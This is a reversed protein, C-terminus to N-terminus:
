TLPRLSRSYERRAPVSVLEREPYRLATLSGGYVCGTDIDITGNVWRAEGVAVHGYVVLAKGRYTRAWDIRIPLGLEDTEGTTKGYLAFAHVAKSERGHMSQPLGAHVCVLRGYDLVYHSPLGRLFDAIRRRFAGNEREVEAVTRDTGFTLRVDRGSLYKLLKMDHNGPLCLTTGRDVADMALRLVRVNGPGRDVLDGLLVLRRGDPHVLDFRPEGDPGSAESLSYGLRDLLETLEDHCGHIDGVIDFPGHDQRHRVSPLPDRVVRAAEAEAPDSIIRVEEFGEQGIHELSTLLLQQQRELTEDPLNRTSRLRNRERCLELDLNLVLATPLVHYERAIRILRTRDRERLNTADVVTLKGIKMRQEVLLHLVDFAAGSVGQRNEDDSVLARCRDSSVVETNRFHRSAFTSKGCGSVGVLVILSPDYFRFEMNKLSSLNDPNKWM